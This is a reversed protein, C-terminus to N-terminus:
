QGTPRAAADPRTVSDAPRRAGADTSVRLIGTHEPASTQDDLSPGLVHRARPSAAYVSLLKALAENGSRAALQPPTMAGDDTAWPDAGYALLLTALVQNGQAAAQHLPSAGFMDRVNADAGSELLARTAGLQSEEVAVHLPTMGYLASIRPDAGQLLLAEVVATHGWRAAAHLPAEGDVDVTNPDAGQALLREVDALRGVRADWWLRTRGLRDVAPGELRDTAAPERPSQGGISQEIALQPRRADPAHSSATAAAASAAVPDAPQKVPFCTTAISVTDKGDDQYGYDEDEGYFTSLDQAIRAFQERDRPQGHEDRYWALV